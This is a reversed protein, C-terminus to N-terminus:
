NRPPHTTESQLIKTRAKLIARSAFSISNSLASRSKSKSRTPEATIGPLSRRDLKSALPIKADEERFSDFQPSRTTIKMTVTAQPSATLRWGKVLSWNAECANTVIAERSGKQRNSVALSVPEANRPLLIQFQIFIDDSVAILSKCKM